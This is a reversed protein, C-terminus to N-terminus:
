VFLRKGNFNEIGITLDHVGDKIFAVVTKRQYHKIETHNFRYIM